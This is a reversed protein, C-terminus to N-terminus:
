RPLFVINGARGASESRDARLLAGDGGGDHGRSGPELTVNRFRKLAPEYRSYM